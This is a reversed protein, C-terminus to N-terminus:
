DQGLISVFMVLQCGNKPRAFRIRKRMTQRGYPIWGLSAESMFVFQCVYGSVMMIFKSGQISRVYKFCFQNSAREQSTITEKHVDITRFEIPNVNDNLQIHGHCERFFGSIPWFLYTWENMAIITRSKKNREPENHM